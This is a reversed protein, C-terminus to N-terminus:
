NEDLDADVLDVEATAARPRHPPPAGALRGPPTLDPDRSVDADLPAEAEVVAGSRRAKWRALARELEEYAIM